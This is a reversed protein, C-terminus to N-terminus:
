PASRALSSSSQWEDIDQYLTLRGGAPLVGRRYAYYDFVQWLPLVTVDEHVLRHLTTLLRRAEPGNPASQIERLLLQIAPSTAPAL